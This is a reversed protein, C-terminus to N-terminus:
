AHLSFYIDNQHTTDICFSSSLSFRSSSLPLINNLKQSFHCNHICKKKKEFAFSYIPQFGGGGDVFFFFDSWLQQSTGNFIHWCFIGFNSFNIMSHNQLTLNFKLISLFPNWSFFFLIVIHDSFVDCFKLYFGLVFELSQLISM